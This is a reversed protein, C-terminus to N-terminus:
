QNQSNDIATLGSGNLKLLGGMREYPVTAETRGMAYCAIEYDGYVGVVGKDSLYLAAPIPFETYPVLYGSEEISKEPSIDYKRYYEELFLKRFAVTDTIEKRLDLKKGSLADFTLPRMVSWGHAGGTYYHSTILLSLLKESQYGKWESVNSYNITDHIFEEVETMVPTRQEDSLIAYLIGCSEITRNISDAVANDTSEVYPYAIKLQVSHLSDMVHEYDVTSTSVVTVPARNCSLLLSLALSFILTKM